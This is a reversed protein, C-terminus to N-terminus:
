CCDQMEMWNKGIKCELELPIDFQIGFRRYLSDELIEEAQKVCALVKQEESPFCDIVVSDHVSNVILSKLYASRMKQEVLLLLTQVVDTSLSQVPYNKV